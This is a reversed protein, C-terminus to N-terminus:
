KWFYNNIHTNEIPVQTSQREHYKALNEYNYAYCQKSYDGIIGLKKIPFQPWQNSISKELITM